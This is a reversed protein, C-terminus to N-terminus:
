MLERHTHICVKLRNNLQKIETELTKINPLDPDPASVTVSAQQQAEPPRSKRWQELEAELVAKQQQLM